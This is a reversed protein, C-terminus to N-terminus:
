FLDQQEAEFHLQIRNPCQKTFSEYKLQKQQFKQLDEEQRLWVM